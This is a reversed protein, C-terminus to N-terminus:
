AVRITQRIRQRTLAIDGDHVCFISGGFQTISNTSPAEIAACRIGRGPSSRIETWSFHEAVLATKELPSVRAWAGLLERM